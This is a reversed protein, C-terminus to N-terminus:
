PNGVGCASGAQDFIEVTEPTITLDAPIGDPYAKDLEGTLCDLQDDTLFNPPLGFAELYEDLAGVDVTALDLSSSGSATTSTAGGDTAASTESPADDQDSALTDDSGGCSAVALAAIAVAVMGRRM